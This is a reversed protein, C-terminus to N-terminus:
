IGDGLALYRQTFEIAQPAGYAVCAAYGCARMKALWYKQNPQLKGHITKLEIWLGCYKGRPLPLFYDSVGARVGELKLQHGEWPTTHRENGIHFLLEELIPVTCAWGYYIQAEKREPKM